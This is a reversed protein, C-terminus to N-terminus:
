GQFNCKIISISPKKVMGTCAMAIYDHIEKGKQLSSLRSCSPLVSSIAISNPKIGALRMQRFIEVAENAYGNQTYGGIMGNWSIVNREPMKDFVDRADNVCGCKAYMDVLASGVFIDCEFGRKLLYGHIEKGHQLAGQVACASIVTAVTVSNPEVGEKQMGYFLKWAEDIQGIQIYGTILATWSVVDKEPLKEFVQRAEGILGCKGYMDLLGNGVVVNSEFGSRAICDHVEIGQQLASLETCAKLVFPFTFNDPAVGEQQMKDYLELAEGCYGHKVYGRILANCAYVNLKPIRQFAIEAERFSGWIAYLNVLKTGLILTQKMGTILIRAHLQKGEALTRTNACAQLLSACTDHDMSFDQEDMSEQRQLALHQLATFPKTNPHCYSFRVFLPLRSKHHFAM